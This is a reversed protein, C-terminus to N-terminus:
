LWDVGILIFLPGPNAAKRADALLVDFLVADLRKLNIELM